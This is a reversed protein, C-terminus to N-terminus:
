KMTRIVSYAGKSIFILFLSDAQLITQDRLQSSGSSFPYAVWELIRPSGKHSLQYLIQGCCLLGPNSGQTPFIGQLLFLSDVGTNQDPSNWPSWLCHPWLSNSVVSHSESIVGNEQPYTQLGMFRETPMIFSRSSTENSIYFLHLRQLCQITQQASFLAEKEKPIWQASQRFSKGPTHSFFNFEQKLM